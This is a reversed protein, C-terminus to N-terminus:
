RMINTVRGRVFAESETAITAAPYHSGLGRGPFLELIIERAKLGDSMAHTVSSYVHIPM